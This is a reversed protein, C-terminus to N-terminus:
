AARVDAESSAFFQRDRVKRDVVKMGSMTAIDKFAAFVGRVQVRPECDGACACCHRVTLSAPKFLTRQMARASEAVMGLDGTEVVAARVFPM